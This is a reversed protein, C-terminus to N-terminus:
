FLCIRDYVIADTMNLEIRNNILLIMCVNCSVNNKFKTRHNSQRVSHIQTRTINFTERRRMKKRMCVSIDRIPDSLRVTCTLNV